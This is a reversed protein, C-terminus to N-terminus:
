EPLGLAERLEAEREASAARVRDSFDRVSDTIGAVSGGVRHGIAQPTAQQLYSRAKVVVFLAAGAGVGMWFVRRIM